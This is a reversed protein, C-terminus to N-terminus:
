FFFEPTKIMSFVWNKRGIELEQAITLRSKSTAGTPQLYVRKEKMLIFKLFTRHPNLFFEAM